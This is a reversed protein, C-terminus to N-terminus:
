EQKTMQRSHALADEGRKLLAQRTSADVNAHWIYIHENAIQAIYLLWPPQKSNILVEIDNQLIPPLQIDWVAELHLRLLTRDDLVIDKRM